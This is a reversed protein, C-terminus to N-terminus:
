LGRRRADASLRRAVQAPDTRNHMDARDEDERQAQRYLADQMGELLAELHDMRADHAALRREIAPDLAPQSRKGDARRARWAAGLRDALGAIRTLRPRRVAHGGFAPSSRHRAGARPLSALPRHTGGRCTDIM